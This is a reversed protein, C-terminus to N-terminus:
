KAKSKKKMILVIVALIVAVIIPLAFKLTDNNETDEEKDTVVEDTFHIEGNKTEFDIKDGSGSTLEKVTIRFESKEKLSADKVKFKIQFISGDEGIEDVSVLGIRVRSEEPYDQEVLFSSFGAVSGKICSEYELLDTDYFLDLKIGIPKLESTAINELNINVKIENAEKSVEMNQVSVIVEENAFIKTPLMQFAIVLLLLTVFIKKKM